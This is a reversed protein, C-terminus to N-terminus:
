GEVAERKLALRIAETGSARVEDAIHDGQLDEITHWRMEEHESALSGSSEYITNVDNTMDLVSGDSFFGTITLEITEGQNTLLGTPPSITLHQLFVNDGFDTIGGPVPVKQPSQFIIVDQGFCTQWPGLALLLLLLFRM